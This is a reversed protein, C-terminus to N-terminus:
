TRCCLYLHLVVISQKVRESDLDLMFITFVHIINHEAVIHVSSISTCM